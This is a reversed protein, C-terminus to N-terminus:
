RGAELFGQIDLDRDAFRAHIIESRSRREAPSLKKEPPSVPEALSDWDTPLEWPNRYASWRAFDEEGVMKKLAKVWRGPIEKQSNTIILQSVWQRSRRISLESSLFQAFGAKTYGSKEIIREFIRGTVRVDEM